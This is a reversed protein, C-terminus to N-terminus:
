PRTMFSRQGTLLRHKPDVRTQSIHNSDYIDQKLIQLIEHLASLHMILNTCRHSTCRSRESAMLHTWNTYMHYLVAHMHVIQQGCLLMCLTTTHASRRMGLLSPRVYLATTNCTCTTLLYCAGIPCSIYADMSAYM